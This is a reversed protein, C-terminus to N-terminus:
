RAYMVRGVRATDLTLRDNSGVSNLSNEDFALHFFALALSYAHSLEGEKYRLLDVTLGRRRRRLM